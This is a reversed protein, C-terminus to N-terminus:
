KRPEGRVYHGHNLAYDAPLDPRPKALKRALAAFDDDGVSETRPTINVETGDALSLGPPLVIVGNQVTGIYTM